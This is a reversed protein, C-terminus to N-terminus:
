IVNPPLATPADVDVEEDSGQPSIVSRYIGVAKENNKVTARGRDRVAHGNKPPALEHNQLPPLM